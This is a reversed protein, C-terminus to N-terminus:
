EAYPKSVLYLGYNKLAPRVHPLATTILELDSLLVSNISAQGSELNIGKEIM